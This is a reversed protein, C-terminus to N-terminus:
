SILVTQVLSNETECISCDTKVIESVWLMFKENEGNTLTLRGMARFPIQFVRNPM